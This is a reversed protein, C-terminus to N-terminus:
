IIKLLIGTADDTAKVRPHSKCSADAIEIERLERVIAELGRTIAADILENPKYRQYLESLRTLGDSAILIHDGPTVDLSGTAVFKPPPPTISLAGYGDPLNIKARRKRIKPWILAKVEDHSATANQEQLSVVVKATSRDGAEAGGLGVTHTNEDAQVILACDGVAVYDVRDGNARIIMTTASPYEHRGTPQRTIARDFAAAVTECIRAPFDDLHEPPMLAATSITRHVAEAFWAADTGSGILPTEIVDTAGDIVWAMLGGCHGYRDENAEGSALSISDIVEFVM